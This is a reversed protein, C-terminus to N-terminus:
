GTLLDRAVAARKRAMCHARREGEHRARQRAGAGATGKLEAIRKLDAVTPPAVLAYKRGYDGEYVVLGARYEANGLGPM